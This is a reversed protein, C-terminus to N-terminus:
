SKKSFAHQIMDMVAERDFGKTYLPCFGFLAGTRLPAKRGGLGTCTGRNRECDRESNKEESCEEGDTIKVDVALIM